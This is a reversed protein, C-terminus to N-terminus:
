DFVFINRSSTKLETSQNENTDTHVPGATISVPGATISVPGATISVPGATVSVPDATISVPGATISVPDTTEEFPFTLRYMSGSQYVGYEDPEPPGQHTFGLPDWDTM